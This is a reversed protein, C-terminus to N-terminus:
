TKPLPLFVELIGDLFGNRSPSKAQILPWRSACLGKVITIAYVRLWVDFLFRSISLDMSPSM